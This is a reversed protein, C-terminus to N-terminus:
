KVRSKLSDFAKFALSKVKIREKSGLSKPVSREVSHFRGFDKLIVDGESVADTIASLVEIVKVKESKISTGKKSALTRAISEITNAM